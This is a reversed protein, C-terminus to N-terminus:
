SDVEIVKTGALKDGLRRGEPDTLVLVLEIVGIVLAVPVAIIWGLIPIIALISGIALPWNRQISTTIDMNGGDLRVPRLKMLKKGLSRKDMFEIDLGDKLLIYAAGVIGGVVPIAGVLAALVNDILAAIFRKVLDAKTASTTSSVPAQNTPDDMVNGGPKKNSMKITVYVLIEFSTISKNRAERKAFM